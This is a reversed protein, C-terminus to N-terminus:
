FGVPIQDAQHYDSRAAQMQGIVPEVLTVVAPAQDKFDAIGPMTQHLYADFQQPNMGLQHQLRPLAGTGLEAGAAKVSEFGNHVDTVGAASMLPRYHDAIKEADSSRSFLHESFTFGILVLGVVLSVTAGVRTVTM